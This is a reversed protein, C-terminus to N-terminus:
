ALDVEAVIVLSGRAAVTDDTTNRLVWRYSGPEETYTDDATVTVTKNGDGGVSIEGAATTYSWAATKEGPAYVLMTHSDGTQAVACPIAHPGFRAHQYQEIAVDPLAGLATPLVNLTIPNISDAVGSVIPTVDDPAWDSGDWYASVSGVVADGEAPSAGEHFTMRYRGVALGAPTAAVYYGSSGQETAAIDYDGWNSSNYAEFAESSTNYVQDTADRLVAYLDLGPLDSISITAM